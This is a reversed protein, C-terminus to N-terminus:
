FKLFIGTKRKKITGFPQKKVYIQKRLKLEESRIDFKEFKRQLEVWGVKQEDIEMKRKHQEIWDSSTENQIDVLKKNLEDLNHKVLNRKQNKFDQLWTFTSCILSLSKGTGKKSFKLIM